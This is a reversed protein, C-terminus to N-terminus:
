SKPVISLGVKDKVAKWVAKPDATEMNPFMDVMRDKFRAIADKMVDSVDENVETGMQVMIAVLDSSYKKAEKENTVGHIPVDEEEDGKSKREEKPM